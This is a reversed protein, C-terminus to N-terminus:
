EGTTQSIELVRQWYELATRYNCNKKAARAVSELLVKTSAPTDKRRESHACVVVAHNLITAGDQWNSAEADVYEGLKCDLHKALLELLEPELPLVKRCVAQVMRHITYESGGSGTSASSSRELLSYGQLEDMADELREEADDEDSSGAQELQENMALDASIDLLLQEGIQEPALHSIVQLLRKSYPGFSEINLAFTNVVTREARENRALQDDPLAVESMKQRQLLKLGGKRYRCVYKAFTCGGKKLMYAGAQEMAVFLGGLGPEDADGDGALWQLAKFEDPQEQEMKAVMLAAERECVGRARRVMFVMAQEIGATGIHMTSAGLDDGCPVRSTVIIHGGSPLCSPLESLVGKDDANDVLLLWDSRQQLHEKFGAVVEGDDLDGACPLQLAKCAKRVSGHLSHTTDALLCFVGGPYEGRFMFCYRVALQTKGVGGHAQVVAKHTLVQRGSSGDCRLQDYLAFLDAIRGTFHPNEAWPMVFTSKSHCCCHLHPTGTGSTADARMAGKANAFAAHVVTHLQQGKRWGAALMEIFSREFTCAAQDALGDRWWMAFKIREPASTVLAYSDPFNLLLVEVNGFAELMESTVPQYAATADAPDVAFNV